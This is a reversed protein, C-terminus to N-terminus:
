LNTKAVLEDIFLTTGNNSYQSYTHGATFRYDSGYTSTLAAATQGTTVTSWNSGVLQVTHQNM